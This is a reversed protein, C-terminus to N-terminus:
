QRFQVLVTLTEWPRMSFNALDISEGSAHEVTSARLANGIRFPTTLRVGAANRGGIEQFRLVYWGPQFEAPKFALLQVQPTSVELFGQMAKPTGAEMVSARLPLNCEQGFREWQAADEAQAAIRFRVPLVALSRPESRLMQSEGEDRTSARLDEAAILYLMEPKLLAADRNALTVGWSPAVQRHVFHVPTFQLPKGGPLLDQPLRIVFGAGDLFFQGSGAVPLALGGRADARDAHLRSLDVDFQLDAYPIGRYLRITTRTLLANRHLLEIRRMVPGETVAIEASGSPELHFEERGAARWFSGFPRGLEASVMQRKTTRELIGTIWGARDWTVELPFEGASGDDSAEAKHLAYTRYGFAPVDAALFVIHRRTGPVEEYAVQENTAVDTIALPGERLPGPLREAEVPGSRKWPLGNFVVITASSTNGATPNPIWPVQEPAALGVIARRLIQETASFGNLAASYHAINSWDADWRSFYGPWGGGSDATHEHFALLSHWAQTLDFKPFSVKNVLAALTSAAEAAPLENSEQRMKAATEPVRLKVTEWHGASDGSASSFRDGYRAILSDFFEEPTSMKMPLDPHKQNWERIRELIHFAGMPDINDGPSAM